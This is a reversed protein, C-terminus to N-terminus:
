LGEAGLIRLVAELVGGGIARAKDSITFCNERQGRPDIDAVKISPTVAVGDHLVGRLIGNLCAAVPFGDVRGIIDGREVLDGISKIPHFTGSQSAYIVRADSEGLVDAPVGTDARATGQEIVRGLHHGRNTEIVFRAERPALIGPGLGVVREPFQYEHGLSRKLMRGDVIITNPADIIRETKALDPDVLVPISRQAMVEESENGERIRKAEVHEVIHRGEYVAEAFSVARRIALPKETETMLVRFGCNILRHAAGSAMEGAGRVVILNSGYEM